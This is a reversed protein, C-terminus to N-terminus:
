GKDDDSLSQQLVMRASCDDNSEVCAVKSRGYMEDGTEMVPAGIPWVKVTKNSIQGHEDNEQESVLRRERKLKNGDAEPVLVCMLRSKLILTTM